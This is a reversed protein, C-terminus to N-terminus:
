RGFNAEAQIGSSGLEAFVTQRATCALDKSGYILESDADMFSFVLRFQGPYEPFLFRRFVLSVGMPFGQEFDKM